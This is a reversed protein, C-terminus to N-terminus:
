NPNLFSSINTGFAIQRASGDCMVFLAGGEFPGGWTGSVNATPGDPAVVNSNRGSGGYGGSLWSEDWCGPEVDTGQFTPEDDKLCNGGVFITNSTGNGNTIVSLSLNIDNTSTSGGSDNLFCNIAYDTQPGPISGSTAYGRRSRGPCLYTKVAFSTDANGTTYDVEFRPIQEIYPLLQYCWSGSEQDTPKGYDGQAGNYPLKGMSDHFLHAALVIQHLNNLSSARAAAVRVRQVAAMLMGILVAIIAIVVLLEILTFGRRRPTLM